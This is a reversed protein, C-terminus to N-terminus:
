KIPSIVHMQFNHTIGVSEATNIIDQVVEDDVPKDTESAWTVGLTSAVAHLDQTFMKAKNSMTVDSLYSQLIMSAAKFLTILFWEWGLARLVLKSAMFVIKKM